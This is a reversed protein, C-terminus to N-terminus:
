AQKENDNEGSQKEEGSKSSESEDKKNKSESDKKEVKDKEEKHEQDKKQKTQGQGKGETKTKSEAKEETKAEAKDKDEKTTDSKTKTKSESKTQSKEKDTEPQKDQSASKKDSEQKKEETPTEEVEGSTVVTDEAPQDSTQTKNEPSVDSKEDPSDKVETTTDPQQKQTDQTEVKPQIKKKGGSRGRRTRKQSEEEPTKLMNENYDVLEIFCMEAGDGKRFGTKLIRTYGGRRDMIKPSVERFLENIAEKNQLYAFVTRRSTTNDHKSKTILPEVYSRLEKAKALTTTIRKHMILQSAMNSLMAKRHSATRGLHNFSKKHRM